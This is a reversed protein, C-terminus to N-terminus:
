ATKIEVSSEPRLIGHGVALKAVVLSGQNQILYASEVALDVLKVTGVASRHMILASTTSFNGQYAAPGTAVNTSPFNNTKVIEIGAIRMITGSALGGNPTPNWDRHIAKSSSSVLLYYLDPTLFCYREDSPVDKEDLAQAADFIAAVLDDAVTKSTASVIATGGNGGSVTAAARAALVGVQLINKDLVKALAAGCQKSYESRVDYQSLAEDINALFVSSVLLDDITIVRENANMAQGVIMDGPTHYAAAAKWTAPFQASKGGKITRVMSRSMAVNTESFAGLTEGAFLKLFLARNDGAGNVQGPSAVTMNPAAM